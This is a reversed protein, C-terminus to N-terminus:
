TRLPYLLANWQMASTSEDHGTNTVTDYFPNVTVNSWVLTTIGNNPYDNAVTTGFKDYVNTANGYSLTADSSLFKTTKITGYGNGGASTNGHDFAELLFTGAIHLRNTQNNYNFNGAVTIFFKETDANYACILVESTDFRQQGTDYPVNSSTHRGDASDTIPSAWLRIQSGANTTDNYMRSNSLTRYSGADFIGPGVANYGTINGETRVAMKWHTSRERAKGGLYNVAIRFNGSGMLQGRNDAGVYNSWSLMGSGSNISANNANTNTGDYTDPFSPASYVTVRNFTSGGSYSDNRRGFTSISYPMNFATSINGQAVQNISSERLGGSVTNASAAGFNWGLVIPSNGTTTGKVRFVEVAM